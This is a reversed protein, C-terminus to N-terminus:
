KLQKFAKRIYGAISETQFNLKRKEFVISKLKSIDSYNLDTFENLLNEMCYQDLSGSLYQLENDRKKRILLKDRFILEFKSKEIKTMSKTHENVKARLETNQSLYDIIEEHLQRETDNLEGFDLFPEGQVVCKTRIKKSEKILSYGTFDSVENLAIVLINATPFIQSLQEEMKTLCESEDMNKYFILDLFIFTSKTGFSISLEEPNLNTSKALKFKPFNSSTINQPFEGEVPLQDIVIGSIIYGM